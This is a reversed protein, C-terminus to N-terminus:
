FLHGTLEFFRYLIRATMGWIVYNKYKYVHDKIRMNNKEFYRMEYHKPDNLHSVPIWLAEAVEHKDPVLEVDHTLISLYPTVVYRNAGPSIPNFDDMEGLVRGYLRLDIGTEEFTERIATDLRTKDEPQVKGGPFAMHGSFVDTVYEPRKIFLMSYDGEEPKLISMVSATIFTGEKNFKVAANDKLIREIESIISWPM